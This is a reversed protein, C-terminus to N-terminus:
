GFLGEQRAVLVRRPVMWGAYPAWEVEPWLWGQGFRRAHNRRRVAHAHRADHRGYYKRLEPRIPM